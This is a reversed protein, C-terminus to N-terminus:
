MCPLSDNDKKEVTEQAEMVSFYKYKVLRKGDPPVKIGTPICCYVLM